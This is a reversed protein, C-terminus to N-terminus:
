KDRWIQAIKLTTYGISLGLLTISLATEINSMSVALVSSNVIWTKTIDGM